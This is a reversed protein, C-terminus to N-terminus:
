DDDGEGRHNAPGLASLGAILQAREAASLRATPHLSVYAAPPMERETIAEGSEAAEEQSRQWESFNLVRRGEDVDRQVLWSVPAVSSYWPWHTQNSHCDFCAKVALPRVEPAWAPEAVVPPNAHDRGYPVLQVVLLGAGLVALTRTLRRKM